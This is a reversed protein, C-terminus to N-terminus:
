RWEPINIFFAFAFVILILAALAAIALRKGLPSPSHIPKFDPLHM